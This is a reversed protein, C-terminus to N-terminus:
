AADLAARFREESQFPGIVAARLGGELVAGAAEQVAQEDVADLREVV